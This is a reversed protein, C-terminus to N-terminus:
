LIGCLARPVIIPEGWSGYVGDCPSRFKLQRSCGRWRVDVVCAFRRRHSPRIRLHLVKRKETLCIWRRVLGSSHFCLVAIGAGLTMPVAFQFARQLTGTLDSELAHEVMSAQTVISSASHGAEDGRCPLHPMSAPAGAQVTCM